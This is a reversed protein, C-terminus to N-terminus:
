GKGYRENALDVGKNIGEFFGKNYGANFIRKYEIENM